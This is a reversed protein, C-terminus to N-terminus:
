HTNLLLLEQVVQAVTLLTLEVVVAVAVAIPQAVKDQQAV